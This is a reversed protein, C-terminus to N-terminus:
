ALKSDPLPHKLVVGDPDLWLPERLRFRPLDGAQGGARGTEGPHLLEHVNVSGWTEIDRCDQPQLALYQPLQPDAPWPRSWSGRLNRSLVYCTLKGAAAAQLLRNVPLGLRECAEPLSYASKAQENESKKTAGTRLGKLQRFRVAQTSTMVELKSTRTLVHEHSKSQAIRRFRTMLTDIRSM